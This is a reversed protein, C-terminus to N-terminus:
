QLLYLLPYEAIALMHVPVSTIISEKSVLPTYPDAKYQTTKCKDPSQPIPTIPRMYQPLVTASALGMNLCLMHLVCSAQAGCLLSSLAQSAVIAIQAINTPRWDERIKAERLSACNSLCM